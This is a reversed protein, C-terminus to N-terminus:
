YSHSSTESVCAPHRLFDPCHVLVGCLSSVESIGMYSGESILAVLKIEYASHGAVGPIEQLDTSDKEGTWSEVVIDDGIDALVQLSTESDATFAAVYVFARSGSILHYGSAFENDTSKHATWAQNVVNYAYTSGSSPSFCHCGRCM